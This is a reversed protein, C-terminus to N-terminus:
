SVSIKVTDSTAILEFKEEQNETAFTHFWISNWIIRQKKKFPFYFKWFRYFNLITLTKSLKDKHGGCVLSHYKDNFKIFLM